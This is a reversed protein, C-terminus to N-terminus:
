ASRTESSGNLEATMWFIRTTPSTKSYQLCTLHFTPLIGSMWHEREAEPPAQPDTLIFPVLVSLANASQLASLSRNIPLMSRRTHLAGGRCPSLSDDSIKSDHSRGLSNDNGGGYRKRRKAIKVKRGAHSRFPM